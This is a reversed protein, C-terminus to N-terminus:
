ERSLEESRRKARLVAEKVIDEFGAEDLYKVGEITTGAKSCVQYIISDIESVETQGILCASGLITSLALGKAHDESLGGEVGASILSKIFKYVFAPGSGSLGTIINIDNENAKLTVGFMDCFRMIFKKETDALGDFCVANASYGVVANLNPMVRAVGKVGKAMDRLRAISVGAMISILIKDRFDIGAFVEKASQPKVALLIYKSNAVVQSNDTTTTIKSNSLEVLRQRDTDSVIIKLKSTHRIIASSM